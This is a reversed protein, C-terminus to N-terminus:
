LRLLGARYLTNVPKNDWFLAFDELGANEYENRIEQLTLPRPNNVQLRPLLAALWAGKAPELQVSVTTKKTQFTLSVVEWQAGKKSKVITETKPPKGLWIVKYNASASVYDTEEIAKRLTDPAVTTRPVKFDFWKQLPFDFCAGHMYNLLAKRLGYGFREHEAGSPDTHELDNNAFTGQTTTLKKINFREPELGIPSHATMTFLHWYASQLVGTEFLQRVMELADITEQETQTPFGYMLYAHVM